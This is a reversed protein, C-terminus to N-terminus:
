ANDPPDALTVRYLWGHGPDGHLTNIADQWAGATPFGSRDAYDTLVNQTPTVPGEIEAVTVTGQKPGLREKRWWTWGTTRADARFTIVEGEDVLQQRAAPNSFTIPGTM